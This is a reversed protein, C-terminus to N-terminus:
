EGGTDFEFFVTFETQKSKYQASQFIRMLGESSTTPDEQPTQPLKLNIMWSMGRSLEFSTSPYNKRVPAEDSSGEELFNRQIEIEGKFNGGKAFAEMNILTTIGLGDESEPIKHGVFWRQSLARSDFHKEIRELVRVGRERSPHIKAPLAGARFDGFDTHQQTSQSEARLMEMTEHDVEAYLIHVTVVDSQASDLARATPGGLPPPAAGLEPPPAAVAATAAPTQAGFNKTTLPQVKRDAIVPGGKLFQVRAAMEEKQHQRIFFILGMVLVAATVAYLAPHNLIRLGVPKPKPTFNEMDVGCKACYRDSPQSFGCKPCDVM